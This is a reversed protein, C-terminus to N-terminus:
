PSPRSPLTNSPLRIIKQRTMAPNEKLLRRLHAKGRALRSMVTGVPVSLIEAIERYSHDELYYLVLPARYVEEVRWLKEMLTVGDLHQEVSPSAVPLETEVSEVDHHPFRLERRRSALFERHLTTFLWTRAKSRDRLQHGKTAWLYFTQQTLDCAEAERQTLSLAFRYLSEYCADVIQEFEPEVVVIRPKDRLFIGGTM